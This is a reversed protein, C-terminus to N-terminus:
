SSVSFFWSRFKSPMWIQSECTESSLGQKNMIDAEKRAFKEKSRLKMRSRRVLCLPYGKILFERDLVLRMNNLNVQGYASSGVTGLIAIIKFAWSMPIVRIKLSESSDLGLKGYNRKGSTCRRGILGDAEVKAKTSLLEHVTRLM